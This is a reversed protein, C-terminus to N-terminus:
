ARERKLVIRKGGEDYVPTEPQIIIGHMQRKQEEPAEQWNTIESEKDLSFKLCEDLPAILLMQAFFLDCKNFLGICDPVNKLKGDVFLAFAYFDEFDDKSPVIKGHIVIEEGAGSRKFLKKIKEKIKFTAEEALHFTYSLNKYGEPRVCFHFGDESSYSVAVSVGQIKEQVIWTADEPVIKKINDIVQPDISSHENTISKPLYDFNWNM